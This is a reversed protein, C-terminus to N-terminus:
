RRVISKRDVYSFLHQPFRQGSFLFDISFPFGDTPDIPITHKGCISGRADLSFNPVRIKRMQCTFCFFPSVNM